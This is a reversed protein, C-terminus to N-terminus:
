GCWILSSPLIKRKCKVSYFLEFASSHLEGVATLSCKDLCSDIMNQIVQFISVFGGPSDIYIDKKKQTTKESENWDKIFQDLLKQDGFGTISIVSM